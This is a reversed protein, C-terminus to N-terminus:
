EIWLFRRVKATAGYGTAQSREVVVGDLHLMVTSKGEKTFDACTASLFAEFPTGTRQVSVSFSASWPAEVNKRQRLVDGADRYTITCDSYSAQVEYTISFIAESALGPEPPDGGEPGSLVRADCGALTTFLLLFVAIRFLRPM